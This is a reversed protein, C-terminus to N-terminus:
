WALQYRPKNSMQYWVDLSGLNPYQIPTNDKLESDETVDETYTNTLNYSIVSKQPYWYTGNFNRTVTYDTKTAKAMSVDDTTGVVQNFSYLQM